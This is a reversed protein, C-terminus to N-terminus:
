VNNNEKISREYEEVTKDVGCSPLTRESPYMKYYADKYKKVYKEAATNTNYWLWDLLGLVTQRHRPSVGSHCADQFFFQLGDMKNTCILHTKTARIEFGDRYTDRRAAKVRFIKIWGNKAIGFFNNSGDEADEFFVVKMDRWHAESLIRM